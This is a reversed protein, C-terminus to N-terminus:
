KRHEVVWEILPNSYKYVNFYPTQIAGFSRNFQEIGAIMSGEFDFSKTKTSLWHLAKWILISVNENHYHEMNMASQLLYACNSDYVVFIAAVVNQDADLLQLIAGSKRNIAERCLSVMLQRPLLNEQGKSRWYAIHFDAFWEADTSEALMMLHDARRIKKRRPETFTSFLSQPDSIDPIQYTYRTTQHFGYEYFPQWNTVSPSFCQNYCALRLASLQAILGGTTKKEFALREYESVLCESGRHICSYNYWPGNYQTLQPQLIYRLGWKSGILYPMAAAVTDDREMVLAVDWQKGSCVTEMWWYQLFLPINSEEAECLRHYRENNTM